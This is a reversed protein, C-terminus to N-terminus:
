FSKKILEQTYKKLTRFSEKRTITPDFSKSRTKRKSQKKNQVNKVLPVEPSIEFLELPKKNNYENQYM